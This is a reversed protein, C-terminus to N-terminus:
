RRLLLGVVYSGALVFGNLILALDSLWSGEIHDSWRLGSSMESIHILTGLAGGFAPLRCAVGGHSSLRTKSILELRFQHYRQREQQSM